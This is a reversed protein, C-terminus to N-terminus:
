IGRERRYRFSVNLSGSNWSSASYYLRGYTNGGEAYTGATLGALDARKIPLVVTEGAPIDTRYTIQDGGSASGVAFGYVPNASTNKVVVDIVTADRPACGATDILEGNATLASQTIVGDHEETIPVVGATLILPIKNGSLDPLIRGSRIPWKALPGLPVDQIDKIWVSKGLQLPLLVSVGSSTSYVGLLPDTAGRVLTFIVEGDRWTGDAVVQSGSIFIDAGGGSNPGGWYGTSSIAGTEALYRFTRRYRSGIRLAAINKQIYLSNSASYAIKLCDDEGTVGDQNGSLTLGSAATWGDAGASFDSTYAAVASGTGVECWTPLRGTVTWALVEAATLAGLIPAHPVFRNATFNLGSLFKTTDLTTLVWNPPNNTFLTFSTSANNGAIYVVPDTSSNPSSFVVAGRVRLGSYAARFGAYAFSRYDGGGTAANQRIRLAGSTDIYGTLANAQNEPTSASAAFGFVIANAAPNSTPVDFEFPITIPLGAVAGATGFTAEARRNSTAGDSFLVRSVQRTVASQGIFSGLLKRTGNTAGDLMLFDDNAPVTATVSFDKVRNPM